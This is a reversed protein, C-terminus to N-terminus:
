SPDRRAKHLELPKAVITDLHGRYSRNISSLHAPEEERVIRVAEHVPKGDVDHPMRGALLEYLIVGLAYVDSRTDLALPDGLVQEPSMYSLTGVVQGLDTQRTVHADSDTARAVGFDLIKPQGAEDVLINGPKLDRHIVGREHAHHVGECIKIM